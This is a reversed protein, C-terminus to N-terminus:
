SKGSSQSLQTLLNIVALLLTPEERVDFHAHVANLGGQHYILIMNRKFLIHNKKTANTIQNIKALLSASDPAPVPTSSVNEFIELLEKRGEGTTTDINSLDIGQKQFQEIADQVAESKSMDFEEINEKRIQM